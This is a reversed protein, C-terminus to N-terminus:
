GRGPASTKRARPRQAAVALALGQLVGAALDTLFPSNAPFPQPIGPLLVKCRLHRARGAPEDSEFAMASVRIDVGGKGLAQGIVSASGADPVLVVTRREHGVQLDIEGLLRKGALDCQPSTVDKPCGRWEQPQAIPWALIRMRQLLDRGAPENRAAALALRKLWLILGYVVPWDGEAFGTRILLVPREAFRDHRKAPLLWTPPWNGLGRIRNLVSLEEILDYYKPLEVLDVLMGEYHTAPASFQGLTVSRLGLASRWLLDFIRPLDEGASPQELGDPDMVVLAGHEGARQLVLTHKDCEPQGCETLIAPGIGMAALQSKAQKPITLYRHAFDDQGDNWTYPM